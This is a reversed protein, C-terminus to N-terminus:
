SPPLASSRCGGNPWVNRSRWRFARRSATIGAASPNSVTRQVTKPGKYTTYEDTATTCLQGDLLGDVLAERDDAFKLAPYTHIAM